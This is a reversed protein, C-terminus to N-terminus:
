DDLLGLKLNTMGFEEGYLELVKTDYWLAAAKATKFGSKRYSNGNKTLCARWTGEWGTSVGKYGSTNTNYVGKNHSSVELSVWRCNEKCYDGMPDIRDLVYHPEPKMGMDEIFSEFSQFWNNAVSIGLGGYSAFSTQSEDTCRSKMSAWARYESTKCLNHSLNINKSSRLAECGCSKVDGSVLTKGATVIYKHLDCLNCECLWYPQDTRVHFGVLSKVRLGGFIFGTKDEMKRHDRYKIDRYNECHETAEDASDYLFQKGRLIM